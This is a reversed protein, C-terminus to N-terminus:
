GSGPGTEGDWSALPIAGPFLQCKSTFSFFTHPFALLRTGSSTKQGRTVAPLKWHPEAERYARGQWASYGIAGAKTAFMSTSVLWCTRGILWVQAPATPPFYRSRTHAASAPVSASISCYLPRNTCVSSCATHAVVFPYWSSSQSAPSTTSRSPFTVSPLAHLLVPANGDKGSIHIVTSM